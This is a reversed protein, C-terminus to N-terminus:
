CKSKGWSADLPSMARLREITPPLIDLVYDIDEKTTEKGLTLRLSSHAIEAPIGMALLVHSPDLTGSTCASGSSASIGEMDLSLLIAEGEAGVLCMSVNNPLRKSPHGNLRSNPIKEFIGRILHDRLEALRTAEAAMEREAIEVAKAFGVIGAVNHTGARRNNEQSGGQMFSVMRTGRRIYLVGVGKPGYLKHASVSLLDVGLDNVNVPIHGFTQVADTHLYVGKARTVKSIEELPEITGVENNAHMVSVLVTTDTIAKEVDAPDVIGHEDVPLYTLEFGRKNLFHCPELVAHHEIPTAIIHKGKKENAYAVGKIAFNDAETGGSTFVIERSDAGIFAAVRDRADEIAGRANRGLTYLSSPNGFEKTFYPTMVEVVEPRMPTTAAYDLYIFKEEM